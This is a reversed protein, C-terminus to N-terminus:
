LQGVLPIQPEICNGTSTSRSPSLTTKVIFALVGSCISAKSSIDVDM